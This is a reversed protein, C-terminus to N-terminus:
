GPIQGEVARIDAETLLGAAAMREFRSMVETWAGGYGRMNGNSDVTTAMSNLYTQIDKTALFANDAEGLMLRLNLLQM